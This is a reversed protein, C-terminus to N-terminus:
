APKCELVVASVSRAPFRWRVDAGVALVYEKPTFVRSNTEDIHQRPNEPAIEYVRAAAVAMGDVALRAEVASAYDTNAVHLYVTDGERSGVVDLAPSGSKVAVAQAGNYKRFLRMVAGVPLLYSVGNPVQSLLANSTWRCGNFDAATAIKVRDGNRHYVNMVRAHYVGTLWETLIPNINRPALSLHGETIALPHKSGKSELSQRMLAMKKEVVRPVMEMLEDWADRPASQYRLGNLVTDKRVPSQQMMHFAVYDIHEEAREALTGAWPEPDRGGPVDGWGILKVSSDRGRMAKSFAVTQEITQELTFGGPGYNTENGLQWYKVNYPEAVGHSRRLKDDPDNCYAVWDAAEAADGTRDGEKMKKFYMRGDSVFNVCYMPEAAVKRCLGVFEHTGCRHTEKGGWLYNRYLPRKEAPGVGERWKYYRSLLGGFRLMPPALDKTCEVFDRRWDEADYSWAAEVGPDTAGLPEMFQMYLYPSLEFLPKPDIVLAGGPVEDAAKAQTRSMSLTAAAAAAGLFGRRTLEMM